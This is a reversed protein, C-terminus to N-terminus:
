EEKISRMRKENRYTSGFRGMTECIKCIAKTTRVEDMMEDYQDLVMFTKHRKSSSLSENHRQDEIRNDDFFNSM